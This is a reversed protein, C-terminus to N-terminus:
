FKITPLSLFPLDVYRKYLMFKENRGNEYGNTKIGQSNKSSDISIFGNKKDKYIKIIRIFSLISYKVCHRTVVFYYHVIQRLFPNDSGEVYFSFFVHEKNVTLQLM